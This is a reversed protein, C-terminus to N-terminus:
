KRLKLLEILDPFHCKFKFCAHVDFDNCNKFWMIPPESLIRADQDRNLKISHAKLELDYDHQCDVITVWLASQVPLFDIWRFLKNQTHYYMDDTAYPAVAGVMWALPPM